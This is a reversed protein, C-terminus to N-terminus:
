GHLVERVLQAAAPSADVLSMDVAQEFSIGEASLGRLHELFEEIRGDSEFADRLPAVDIFKDESCDLPIADIYGDDYLIGVHPTYDREDQKRRMLTGTNIIRNDDSIWHAHNDGFVAADYGELKKAWADSSQNSDAHPHKHRHWAYAHIVAIKVSSQQEKEVGIVEFGWPFAFTWASGNDDIPIGCSHPDLNTITGAQVLVWYASKKIADYGHHPLDHQGPICHMHPLTDIAWSILEPPSNWRDFLDGACIIPLGNAVKKLQNISREQAAYWDPEVSRAIPAKHSLHIDSCLCAIPTTM